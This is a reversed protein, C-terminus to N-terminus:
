LQVLNQPQGKAFAISNEVWTLRLTDLSEDSNWANSPPFHVEEIGGLPGALSAENRDLSYAIVKKAKMANALASEDVLASNALNILIAGNALALLDANVIGANSTPGEKETKLSVVIVDASTFLEPLSVLTRGPRESRNWAIVSMGLGECLEAVRTGISGLGIIGVTRGSLNLGKRGSIPRGKIEDVYAMHRQRSHLLIESIVSEAVSQTSYHPINVLTIGKEAAARPSAWDVGTMDFNVMKLQSLEQRSWFDPSIEKCGNVVVDFNLMLIEAGDALHALEDESVSEVEIYSVDVAGKLTEVDADTIMGPITVVVTKM